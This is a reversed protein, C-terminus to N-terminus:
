KKTDSQEKPSNEAAFRQNDAEILDPDILEIYYRGKNGSSNTKHMLKKGNVVRGKLKKLIHVFSRYEKWNKPVLNAAHTILEDCEEYTQALIETDGNDQYGYNRTQDNERKVMLYHLNKATFEKCGYVDYLADIFGQISQQETSQTRSLSVSDWIDIGTAWLLPLRVMQDWQPFGSSPIKASDVPSGEAIFAKIITLCAQLADQRNERCHQVIDPNKYVKAEPRETDSSLTVILFRRLLDAALSVNNGTFSVTTNTPVTIEQSKGLVRGTYYQSTMIRSIVQNRLEAGDSINDFCVMPPSKILMALMQKQIEEPSGSLSSV